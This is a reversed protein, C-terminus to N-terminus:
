DRWPSGPPAQGGPAMPSDIPACGTGNCGGTTSGSGGGGGGSSIPPRTVNTRLKKETTAVPVDATSSPTSEAPKESRPSCAVTVTGMGLIAGAALVLSVKQWAANRASPM